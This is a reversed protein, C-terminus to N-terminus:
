STMTRKLEALIPMEEFDEASLRTWDIGTPAASPRKVRITRTADRDGPTASWDHALRDATIPCGCRRDSGAWEARHQEGIHAASITL